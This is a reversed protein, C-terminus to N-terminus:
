RASRFHVVLFVLLTIGWTVAFPVLAFMLAFETQFFLVLVAPVPAAGHGIILGPALFAAAAFSAALVRVHAPWTHGRRWVRASLWIGLFWAVLFLLFMLFITM